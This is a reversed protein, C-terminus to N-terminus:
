ATEMLTDIVIGDAFYWRFLCVTELGLRAMCALKDEKTPVTELTNHAIVDIGDLAYNQKEESSIMKM